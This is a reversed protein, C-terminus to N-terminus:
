GLAISRVGPAATFVPDQSAVVVPADGAAARRAVLRAVGDRRAPDLGATPEDLVVLGAPAILAAVVEVMRKEGTSLDWTRRAAWAGAAIGLEALAAHARALAEARSLGRQVAAFALEDEVREEFVQQEPFQLALIPPTVRPVTWTVTVGAPQELGALAALLVSKGIGNPGALVTIGRAAIEFRAPRTANVRPGHGASAALVVTAAVGEPPPAALPTAAPDPAGALTVVRHARAAELPDQTVWLVSLGRAVEEEVCALLEARAGPDLHAGPEDAVLLRPGAALAAALLVRQQRGASLTRPDLALEHALGFRAALAAVRRAVEAPPRGLNVLAFGLEEAVTPQLLQASPDQLVCAVGDRPAGPGFPRSEFELTGASAPWLGALALAVCTKGGGNAGTLAVWEGPAIALSLDRVVPAPAGPPTVALARAELRPAAAGASSPGASTTV